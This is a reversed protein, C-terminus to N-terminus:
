QQEVVFVIQSGVVVVPSNEVLVELEFLELVVALQDVGLQELVEVGVEVEVEAM